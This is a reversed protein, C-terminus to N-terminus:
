ELFLLFFWRWGSVGTDDIHGIGYSVVPQLIIALGNGAFWITNRQPIEEKKYWMGTLLVFAPSIGGEAVGLFFRTATLGSFNTAAATCFVLISCAVSAATVFKGLAVYNLFRGAFPQVVLYGFFFISRCNM